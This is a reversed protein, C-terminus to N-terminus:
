EEGQQEYAEQQAAAARQNLEAQQQDLITQYNPDAFFAADHQCLTTTQPQTVTGDANLVTSGNWLSEDEM